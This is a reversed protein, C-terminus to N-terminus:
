ATRLARAYLPGAEWPIILSSGDAMLLGREALELFVAAVREPEAGALLPWQVHSLGKSLRIGAPTGVGALVALQALRLVVREAVPRGALVTGVEELMAAVEATLAGAGPMADGSRDALVSGPDLLGVEGHTDGLPEVGAWAVAFVPEERIMTPPLPVGRRWGHPPSRRSAFVAIARAPAGALAFGERFAEAPAVPFLPERAPPESLGLGTAAPERREQWGIVRRRWRRGGHGGM